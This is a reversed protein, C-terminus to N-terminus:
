AVKEFAPFDFNFLVNGRLEFPGEINSILLNGDEVTYPVTFKSPEAIFVCNENDIFEVRIRGRVFEPWAIWKTGVLEEPGIATKEDDPFDRM